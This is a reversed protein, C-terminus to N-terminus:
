DWTPVKGDAALLRHCDNCTRLQCRRWDGGENTGKVGRSELLKGLRVCSPVEVLIEHAPRVNADEEKSKGVRVFGTLSFASKGDPPTAATWESAGPFICTVYHVPTLHLSHLRSYTPLYSPM